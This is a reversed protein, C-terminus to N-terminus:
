NRTQAVLKTFLFSRSLIEFSNELYTSALAILYLHQQCITIKNEM